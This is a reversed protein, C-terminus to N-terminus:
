DSSRDRAQGASTCRTRRYRGKSAKKEKGSQFWTRAPRSYIEDQHTLMNQARTMEMEAQKLLRDEKEEKMVEEVQPELEAVRRKYRAVVEPPIVRHKITAAPANKIADRLVKRDDEGALTIARGSQGARATRGIRHLYQAYSVPMNYNIVTEIGKIDIGRAALDTALLFDVEGDRFSELAALRQEQSLNGHLEAARMGLLGFMIKMEHASAKSRFFIICRHKFNRMCLSAVIAARDDERHKRVRIFEQILTGVTSKTSDILLRVPRNLSLRVLEDVNDTMTASFLMTQRSRPCSNIIETLEEKFGDDLMRDAEDMVLIEVSDLNFSQSNRVHDILRGPTAIVVDPKQRLETEQVKLSLGGVCLCFQVDTFASLKTAVSHCQIALERTPCLILVRTAARTRPRYILRELIPIIFAATKGSGTVAGGCIDKGLLAVPISKAQILTPQTFGVQTLAKLIPRSLNMTAFTEAVTDPTDEDPAFYARKRRDKLADIADDDVNEEEEEEEDSDGDDSDDMANSGDPCTAEDEEQDNSDQEMEDGTGEEGSAADEHKDKDGQGRSAADASAAKRKNIEALKIAKRKKEIFEDITTYKNQAKLAARAAKFDWINRGSSMEGADDFTFEPNLAGAADNKEAGSSKKGKSKRGKHEASNSSPAPLLESDSIADDVDLEPVHDDDITMVFDSPM